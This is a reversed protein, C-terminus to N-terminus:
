YGFMAPPRYAQLSADLRRALAILSTESNPPGLLQIGVPLGDASWGAPLAIAPLGAVNALCTFDAQNAPARSGHAFAAQPAAPMVLVGDSGLAARLAARTRQLVEPQPDRQAAFGLIFKLEDSLGPNEPRWETGLDNILWHGASILGAMRIATLSDPLSVTGTSAPLADLARAFAQAVAPETAVEGQRELVLVRDLPCGDGPHEAMVKWAAELHDLKAALPGICDLGPELFALGDRSVAGSTPKLGYVGCYAAPIRVSGMTDTGLAVHCLGAAVASGSGGSSGGPSHDLRHPNHVRGYFPNDSHAGLAAEHMNLAGLVAAGAARLRAVVAADRDAMRHRHIGMGATWPLGRVMINSKVGVTLGALAGQGALATEDFDVFAGLRANAAKLADWDIM